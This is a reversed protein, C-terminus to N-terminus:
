EPDDVSSSSISPNSPKVKTVGKDTNTSPRRDPPDPMDATAAAAGAQAEEADEASQPSAQGAGLYVFDDANVKSADLHIAPGAKIGVEGSSTLRIDDSKIQTSASKMITNEASTVNINTGAQMFTGEESKVHINTKTTFFMDTGSVLSISESANIKLNKVILDMNDTHGEMSFKAGKMEIAEGANFRVRGRATVNYNECEINVDGSVFVNKAGGEVRVNWEGGVSTNTDGESKQYQLGETVNYTDGFSKILVTGNSDIQVVSGSNHTILMFGDGDSGEDNVVITNGGNKAQFVVTNLSREPAQVVPENWTHEGPGAINEKGSAQQIPASTIEAQEGSVWPSLPPKAFNDVYDKTIKAM